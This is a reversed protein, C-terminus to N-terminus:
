PARLVAGTTMRRTFSYDAAQGMGLAAEPRPNQTPARSVRARRRGMACGTEGLAPLLRACGGRWAGALGGIVREPLLRACGGRWAGALGGIVRKSICPLVALRLESSRLLRSGLGRATIHNRSDSALIRSRKHAAGLAKLRRRLSSPFSAPRGWSAGFAFSATSIAFFGRSM